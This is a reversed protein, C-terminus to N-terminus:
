TAPSPPAGSAQVAHTAPWACACARWYVGVLPQRIGAAM